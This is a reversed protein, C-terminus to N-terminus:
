SGVKTPSEANLLHDNARSKKFIVTLHRVHAHHYGQIEPKFAELDMLLCLRFAQERDSERGGYTDEQGMNCLSGNTRHIHFVHHYGM